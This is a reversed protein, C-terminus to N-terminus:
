NRGRDETPRRSCTASRSCNAACWCCKQSALDGDDAVESDEFDGFISDGVEIVEVGELMVEGARRKDRRGAGARAAQQPAASPSAKTMSCIM